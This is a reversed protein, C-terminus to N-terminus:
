LLDLDGPPFRTPDARFRRCEPHLRRIHECWSCRPLPLVVVSHRVHLAPQARVERRSRPPVGRSIHRQLRHPCRDSLCSLLGRPWSSELPGWSPCRFRRCSSSCEGRGACTAPSSLPGRDYWCEPSRSHPAVTRMARCIGALRWAPGPATRCRPAFICLSREKERPRLMCLDRSEKINAVPKSKVNAPLNRACAISFASM